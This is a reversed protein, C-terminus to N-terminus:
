DTLNNNGKKMEETASTKQRRRYKGMSVTLVLTCTYKLNLTSSGDQNNMCIRVTPRSLYESGSPLKGIKYIM